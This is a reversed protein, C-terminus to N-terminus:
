ETIKKTFPTRRLQLAPGSQLESANRQAPEFGAAGVIKICPLYLLQM